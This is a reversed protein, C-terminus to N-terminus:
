TQTSLHVHNELEVFNRFHRERQNHSSREDDVALLPKNACLAERAEGEPVWPYERTCSSMFSKPVECGAAPAMDVMTRPSIHSKLTVVKQCFISLYASPPPSPPRVTSVMRAAQPSGASAAHAHHLGHHRPLYRTPQQAVFLPKDPAMHRERLMAQLSAPVEARHEVDAPQVLVHPRANRGPVTHAGQPLQLRSPTSPAAASLCAGDCVAFRQRSVRTDGPAFADGEGPMNGFQLFRAVRLRVVLTAAHHVRHVHQLLYIPRSFGSIGTAGPTSSRRAHGPRPQRFPCRPPGRGTALRSSSRSGRTYLTPDGRDGTNTVARPVASCCGPEPGM